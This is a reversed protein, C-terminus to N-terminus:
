RLVWNVYAPPEDTAFLDLLVRQVLDMPVLYRAEIESGGGGLSFEVSPERYHMDTRIAHFPGAPKGLPFWELYGVDGGIALNMMRTPTQIEVIRPPLQGFQTIVQTLEQASSIVLRDPESALDDEARDVWIWQM